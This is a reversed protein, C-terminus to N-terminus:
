KRLVEETKGNDTITFTIEQFCYYKVVKQYRERLIEDEFEDIIQISQGFASDIEKYGIRTDVINEEIRKIVAALPSLVQEILKLTSWFKESRCLLNWIKSYGNETELREDRITKELITQYKIISSIM